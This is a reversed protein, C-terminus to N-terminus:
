AVDAEERAQGHTTGGNIREWVLDPLQTDPVEATVSLVARLDYVINRLEELELREGEYLDLTTELLALAERAQQMQPM